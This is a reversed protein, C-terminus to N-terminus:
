KTMVKGIPVITKKGKKNVLGPPEVAPQSSLKPDTLHDHASKGKGSFKKNLIVSEEKDEEVEEGFSLLNFDKYSFKENYLIISDSSFERDFMKPNTLLKQDMKFNSIFFPAALLCDDYDIENFDKIITNNIMVNCLKHYNKKRKESITEITKQYKSLFTNMFRYKGIKSDIINFLMCIFLSYLYCRHSVPNKQKQIWYNICAVYVIWEQPLENIFNIDTIGVIYDFIIMKIVLPTEELSALSNLKYVSTNELGYKITDIYKLKVTSINHKFNCRKIYSMYCIESNMLSKLFGFIIQLIELSCQIIPTHFYDEIQAYPIYFHHVILDMFYSPIMATQYKKLFWQPLNNIVNINEDKEVVVEKEDDCQMCILTKIDENFELRRKLHYTSIQIIYDNPFNFAKLIRTPLNNYHNINAVILNLITQRISITLKHLINTIANNLNFHCLWVLIREIRQTRSVRVLGLQHFFHKFVNCDVYDNGLLTAFLPIVSKHLGDFCQVLYKLKYIKCKIYNHGTSSKIINIDLTNFPIYSIDFIYFDSDISLVPCNLTKALTAISADAEMLDQVHCINKEKIISMFIRHVFLPYHKMNRQSHVDFQLANKIKRKCCNICSKLKKSETLGDFIILPTINCKLLNDFFKTVCESYDSYDGGFVCNCKAYFTYIQYAINNGDIILYTDHLNYCKLYLESNDNIYTTLGFIGM